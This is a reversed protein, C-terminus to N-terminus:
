GVTEYRAEPGAVPEPSLRYLSRLRAAAAEWGAETRAHVEALPEGPGVRDGIRARLVVGVAPDVPDTKVRRGAGLELAAVGVGRADLAAVWRDGEADSVVGRVVPARPLVADPDDVVRPDGGQARVLEALVEAGRGARRLEELRVRAEEGDAALGALVLLHTGLELTLKWLEPPGGGRLTDVAERVELANGVARGLPEEMPSLVARTRRGAGEGIRVLAGALERAEEVTPMFAGAGWKVDLVVTRAGGALKKSMISAAILPVSEVTGTVDRLAYLAGDAPVLEPSQGVLACGIRSVQARMEDLGLGVRFGPIAELKDLTGGTHGLGRGSMKVFAAGAAAMLPVLVLSTKDGVGGTSHKDVTPRDLGSWDLVTGSEVMARTLALTEADTMGRWVVAMLWAAMQYDPIRQAVFGECLWRIEEAGLEGGRKKRDILAVMSPGASM